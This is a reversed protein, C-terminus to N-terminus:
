KDNSRKLMIQPIEKINIESKDVFMGLHKGILELAKQKDYLKFKFTGDRSITVEQIARTDVDKSDLTDVIQKYDVVPEGDEDNKTVGKETRYELYNNLDAFGIRALEALVKEQTIETRKELSKQKKDIYNRIQPKTLNECGIETATNESYGARIAAQTANLDILYEDVFRKQKNTLEVPEKNDM